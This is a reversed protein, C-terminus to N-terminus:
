LLQRITALLVEQPCPKTLYAHVGLEQARQRHKESNRSTLMIVKLDATAPTNRIMSLVDYGNLNPMEIDLLCIDPPSEQLREVAEMGDRAEVVQYREHQLSQRVSHRLYAADDAVLVRVPKLDTASSGSPLVASRQATADHIFQEILVPLDVMLLVHGQSDIATGSIGPRQLYPKLPRIIYEVEDIAQDVVVGVEQTAPGPAIVLVPRILGEPSSLNVTAFGLLESLYYIEGSLGLAEHQDIVRQIHAFPVIFRQHNMHVLLCRMTGQARPISLLFSVGGMTNRRLSLHGDLRQLAERMAEVAGGQITMSFGLELILECGSERAHLWVRPPSSAARESYEHPSEELLSADAICTRLLHILPSALAELLDQEVEISEGSVDFQVPQNLASLTVVRQLRPLLVSFPAQRMLLTGQCLDSTRTLYEQQLMSFQTQATQLRGTTINMDIIADKLSQLLRDQESYKEMDLEDWSASKGSDKGQQERAQTSEKMQAQLRGRQPRATRHQADGLIRAILSPPSSFVDENAQFSSTSQVLLPLMAELKQLRHQAASLEQLAVDVQQQADELAQRQEVLYESHRTLTDLRRVDVRISPLTAQLMAPMPVHLPSTDQLGMLLEDQVEKITHLSRGPEEDQLPFPFPAPTHREESPIPQALNIALGKYTADLAALMISSEPEQRTEIILQLCHDLATFASNIAQLALRPTIVHVVAREAIDEIQGAITALLTFNVAGATGRIKHGVRQVSIFRAPNAAGEREFQRLAKRLHQIDEKAEEMFIAYMEDGSQPPPLPSAQMSAASASQQGAAPWHDMAEFAQLIARDEESLEDLFDGDPFEEFPPESM